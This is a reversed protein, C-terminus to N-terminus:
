GLADKLVKAAQGPDANGQSERMVQGVLFQLLKSEGAQYRKVEEPNAKVVKAVISTLAKGSDLTAAGLEEVVNSPDAGDDLMKGLVELGKPGTIKGDSILTIFEAFNEPTLKSDETSFSEFTLKREEMLGVLKSLLWGAFTKVLKQRAEPVDKAEIDPKAELWAGLESLAKEAFDAM